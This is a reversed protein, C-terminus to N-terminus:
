WHVEKFYGETLDAPHGEPKRTVKIRSEKMVKGVTARPVGNCM